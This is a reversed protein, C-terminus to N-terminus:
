ASANKLGDTETIKSVFPHKYVKPLYAKAGQVTPLVGCVLMAACLALAVPGQWRAAGSFALLFVAAFLFVATFFVSVILAALPAKTERLIVNNVLTVCVFAAALYATAGIVARRLPHAANRLRAYVYCVASFCLSLLTLSLFYLPVNWVPFSVAFLATGAATVAAAPLLFLLPTKHLKNM